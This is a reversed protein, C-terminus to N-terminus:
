GNKYAEKRKWKNYEIIFYDYEKLRNDLKSYAKYILLISIICIILSIGYAEIERNVGPIFSKITTNGKGDTWPLYWGAASSFYNKGDASHGLFCIENGKFGDQAFHVLEHTM